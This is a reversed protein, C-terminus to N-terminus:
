APSPLLSVSMKVASTPDEAQLAGEQYQKAAALDGSRKPRISPGNSSATMRCNRPPGSPSVRVPSGALAAAV